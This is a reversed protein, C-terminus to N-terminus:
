KMGNQQGAVILKNDVSFAGPVASARQYAINKDMQSDVAGYLTVHGNDVVIRIPKQPDLAYKQLASDGYVARAVAIRLDDDMQSVPLTQVDDVVGKVGPTTEVIALASDHDSPTRVQGSITVIGNNVGLALNNFMQGQDIRDYRLKDALKDRLQQDSVAATNVSIMNRVGEVHDMGSVKQGLKMKDYYRDVTGQLTVVGDETTAHVNKWQDHKQIESTVKQQIQQDYRGGGTANQTQAAPPTATSPQQQAVVPLALLGAVAAAILTRAIM